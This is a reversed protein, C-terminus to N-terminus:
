FAERDGVRTESRHAPYEPVTVALWLQRKRGPILAGRKFKVELLGTIKM